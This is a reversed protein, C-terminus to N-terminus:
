FKLGLTPMLLLCAWCVDWTSFAALFFSSSEFWSFIYLLGSNRKFFRKLRIKELLVLAVGRDELRVLSGSNCALSKSNTQPYPSDRISILWPILSQLDWASFLPLILYITGCQCIELALLSTLQHSIGPTNTLLSVFSSYCLVVSQTAWVCFSLQRMARSAVLRLDLHKCLCAYGWGESPM